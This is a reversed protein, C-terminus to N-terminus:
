GSEEALRKRARRRVAVAARVEDPALGAAVRHMAEGERAMVGRIRDDGEATMTLLCPILALAAHSTRLSNNSLTKDRKKNSTATELLRARAVPCVAIIGLQSDSAFAERTPLRIDLRGLRNQRRLM